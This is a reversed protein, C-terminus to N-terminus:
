RGIVIVTMRDRNTSHLYLIEQTGLFRLSLTFDMYGQAYVYAECSLVHRGWVV